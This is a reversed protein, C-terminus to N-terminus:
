ALTGNKTKFRAPSEARSTPGINQFVNFITLGLSSQYHTTSAAAASLCKGIIFPKPKTPMTRRTGEVLGDIFELAVASELPKGDDGGAASPSRRRAARGGDM